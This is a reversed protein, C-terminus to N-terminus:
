KWITPWPRSGTSASPPASPTSKMSYTDVFGTLTVIGDHVTVGVDTSRVQPEWDLEQLVARQIEKDTM